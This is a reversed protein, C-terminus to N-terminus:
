GDFEGKIIARIKEFSPDVILEPLKIKRPKRVKTTYVPNPGIRLCYQIESVKKPRRKGKVKVEKVTERIYCNGVVHVSANLHAMVSPMMRPGVEPDIQFEPDSDEDVNFVREQALFVVEIGYDCLYRFNDIMNKMGSAVKGWDQKTLTGWEGPNKDGIDKDEIVDRVKMEQAGTVTDIIVTRYEKKKRNKYLYWYAIDLDEWTECDMVRVVEEDLDAASDDGRDNM